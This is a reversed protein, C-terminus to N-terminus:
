YPKGEPFLPYCAKVKDPIAKPRGTKIDVFVWDTEGTALILSDPKKIFSYRRLSRVRRFDVVWTIAEITDGAFAPHLYDIKHSRVVWTCGISHSALTEGSVQSHLVAIEQMWQIYVVNNVHGNQDIADEPVNFENRFVPEVTLM